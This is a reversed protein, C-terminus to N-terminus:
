SQSHLCKLRRQHHGFDILGRCVFDIEFVDSLESCQQRFLPVAYPHLNSFYCSCVIRSHKSQPPKAQSNTSQFNLIKSIDVPFFFCFFRSFFNNNFYTIICFVTYVYVSLICIFILICYVIVIYIFMYRLMNDIFFMFGQVQRFRDELQTHGIFFCFTNQASRLKYIFM